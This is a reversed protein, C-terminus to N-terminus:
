PSSPIPRLTNNVSCFRLTALAARVKRRDCSPRQAAPAPSPQRKMCVDIAFSVPWSSALWTLPPTSLLVPMRRAVGFRLMSDISTVAGGHQHEGAKSTDLRLMSAIVVPTFLAGCRIGDIEPIEDMESSIGAM